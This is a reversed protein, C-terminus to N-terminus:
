PARSSPAAVAEGEAADAFMDVEFMDALAAAPEAMSADVVRVADLEVEEGV